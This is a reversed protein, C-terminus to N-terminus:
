ADECCETQCLEQTAGRLQKSDAGHMDYGERTKVNCTALDGISRNPQLFRDTISQSCNKVPGTYRYNTFYLLHTGDPARSYVPNGAAGPVVEEAETYPGHATPATVHVIHTQTIFDPCTM